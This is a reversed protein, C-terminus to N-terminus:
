KNVVEPPPPPKQDVQPNPQPQQIPTAARTPGYGALYALGGASQGLLSFGVSAPQLIVLGSLLQFASGLGGKLLHGVGGALHGATNGFQLFALSKVAYAVSGVARFPSAGLTYITSPFNRAFTTIQPLRIGISLDNFNRKGLYGITGLELIPMLADISPSLRLGRSLGKIAAAGMLLNFLLDPEDYKRQAFLISLQMFSMLSPLVRQMMVMQPDHDEPIPAFIARPSPAPSFPFFLGTSKALVDAKNALPVLATGAGWAAAFLGANKVWESCTLRNSAWESWGPNTWFPDAVPIKNYLERTKFSLYVAGMGMGAYVAGQLVRLGFDKARTYPDRKLDPQRIVIQRFAHQIEAKANPKQEILQNGWKYLNVQVTLNAVPQNQNWVLAIKEATKVPDYRSSVWSTIWVIVRRWTTNQYINLDSDIVYDSHKFEADNLTPLFSKNEGLSIKNNDIALGTM